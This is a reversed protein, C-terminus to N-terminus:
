GNRKGRLAYIVVIILLILLVYVNVESLVSSIYDWESGFFYGVGVYAIGWLIGSTIAWFLFQVRSMRFVGALFPVIPRLAGVFRGLFVSVGGYRRFFEVGREIIKEQRKFIAKNKFDEYFLIALYFSAIDALVAGLVTSAITIYINLIGKSALYGSGVSFVAGPVFEGLFAFSELFSVAFVLGYVILQNNKLSELFTLIENM